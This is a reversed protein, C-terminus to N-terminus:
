YLWIVDTPKEPDCDVHVFDRGLGIRTFGAEVLACVLEFRRRSDDVAIDAAWGLLHSSNPSTDYGQAALARQHEITRFGSTIIMPFGYIDRALDLRELLQLWARLKTTHRPNRNM